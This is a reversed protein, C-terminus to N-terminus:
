VAKKKTARRERNAELLTKVHKRLETHETPTFNHIKNKLWAKRAVDTKISNLNKKANGLKNQVPSPTKHTTIYNRVTQRNNSNLESWYNAFKTEINKRRATKPSNSGPWAGFNRYHALIKRQAPTFNKWIEKYVKKRGYVSTKEEMRKRATNFDMKAPSPSEWVGEDRYKALLRRQEFPYDKAYREYITIRGINKAKEMKKRVEEFPLIHLNKEFQEYAERNKRYGANVMNKVMLMASEKNKTSELVSNFFNKDLVPKGQHQGWKKALAAMQVGTMNGHYGKELNALFNKDNLASNFYVPTEVKKYKLRCVPHIDKVYSNRVFIVFSYFINTIQGNAFFSYFNAIETKVVRNLDDFDWWNCPFQKTQNSDFLFGKGDRIYGAIAHWKHLEKNSARSNGITISCCMKTYTDKRFTPIRMMVSIKRNSARAVVFHPMKRSKDVPLLGNESAILYDTIGLHRLVKPLEEDPFAGMGGAHERALTGALSAGGLINASRGAKLEISRPGTQYCLYQDLFKWFYIRRTKILDGRLPCPADIGDDFYLKEQVTLGKYFKNLHDFLLKQGDTSLLLGNLISFFWCTGRTQIAGNM